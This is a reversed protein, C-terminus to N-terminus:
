EARHSMRSSESAPQYSFMAFSRGVCSGSRTSTPSPRTRHVTPSSFRDCAWGKACAPQIYIDLGSCIVPPGDHVLSRTGKGLVCVNAIRGMHQKLPPHAKYVLSIVRGKGPPEGLHTREDGEDDDDGEKSAEARSLVRGTGERRELGGPGEAKGNIIAATVETGGVDRLSLDPIALWLLIPGMTWRFQLIHTGQEARDILDLDDM